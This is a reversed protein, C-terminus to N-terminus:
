KSDDHKVEIAQINLGASQMGSTLPLQNNKLLSATESRTTSLRINIGSTNLAITATIDGLEPMSLRLQTHWRTAQDSDNEKTANEQSEEYIDWKMPQGPWAEGRWLLHGTELTTLQQQVLPITQAHVPVPVPVEPPLSTATVAAKATSSDVTILMLKGQPEQQLNELTNKGHMWQSQHSEYFLGSQVIAKQLLGPLDTSNTPASTLIPNPSTLTHGTVVNATNESTHKLPGQMLVSLFRGATSISTNNIVNDSPTNSLALFELKAENSIFILELKNGPQFNEPLRIQLSKGAVLVQSDGNLLRAEVLAQYKQGQIFETSSFNKSDLIATIPIVPATPKIQTLIAAVGTKIVTPIM